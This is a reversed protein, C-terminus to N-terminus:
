RQSLKGRGYRWISRLPSRTSRDAGAELSSPTRIQVLWKGGVKEHSQPERHSSSTPFSFSQGVLARAPYPLMRRFVSASYDAPMNCGARRGSEPTPTLVSPCDCAGLVTADVQVTITLRLMAPLGAGAGNLLEGPAQDRDRSTPCADAIIFRGREPGIARGSTQRVETRAAVGVTM